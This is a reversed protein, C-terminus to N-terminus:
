REDSAPDTRPEAAIGKFFFRGVHAAIEASTLGNEEELQHRSHPNALSMLLAAIMSTPLASDFDGAAKGQDIVESLRRRPADWKQRMEARLEAMRTIIAPNQMMPLFNQYGQSSIGSTFLEIVAMLKERPTGTRDLADDLAQLYYNFGQKLLAIVLDDKSAFHLYITGKAIGVRTAIEELSMDHYGREALLESAARLIMQEREQRQREKLSPTDSLTAM